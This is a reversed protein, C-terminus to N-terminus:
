RPTRLAALERLASEAAATLLGASHEKGPVGKGEVLPRVIEFVVAVKEHGPGLAGPLCIAAKGAAAALRAIHAPAKGFATQGDLRGEGTVVLDAAAIRETLLAAEGVVEAGPRVQAALFAVVGAGLGGAAGGGALDIVRVGLDSEIVQAFHHLAKDLEEVAAADAGKQPGYVTSAGEPGCLPNTVDTAALFKSERIAPNAGGAEIRALGALAAGGPNLETGDRDLLRYGLAQAMGAGGDNTGSGGLGIVFQRCGDALAADILEGTGLSSARRPDLEDAKLLLLGSASACEIVAGGTSLLAWRAEIPRLLPDHAPGSRWQGGVARLLAEATGPGGDAMPCLDTQAEPLARRVGEAIAEAAEVATLTGKYEQPAVLIRM